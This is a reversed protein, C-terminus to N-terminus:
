EAKNINYIKHFPKNCIYASVRADIYVLQFLIYCYMYIKCESVM